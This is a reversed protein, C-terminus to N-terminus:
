AEDSSMQEAEALLARIERLLTARDELRFSRRLERVVRELDRRIDDFGRLPPHPLAFM